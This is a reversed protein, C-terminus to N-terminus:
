TQTNEEDKEKKEEKMKVGDRKKRKRRKERKQERIRGGNEKKKHINRWRKRQTEIQEVSKKRGM